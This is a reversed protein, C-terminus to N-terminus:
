GGWGSGGGGPSPSRDPPHQRDLRERLELTARARLAIPRDVMQGELGLAGAGAAEQAEFSELLRRAEAVEQDSPRFVDVIVPVQDPHIAHKGLFGMERASTAERRLGALDRYLPYVGDHPPALGAERSALVVEVRAHVLTPSPRGPEQPWRLGLDACLDASGFALCHLRPSAGAIEAARRVGATTEVTAVLQIAGPELGRRAELADLRSAVATVTGAHEVKPLVLGSLGSGVVGELDDLHWPSGAANVRVFCPAPPRAELFRAAAARAAVKAPAAVADELDLILAPPALGRARTLRRESSAPVFLMAVLPPGV